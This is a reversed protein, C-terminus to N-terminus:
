GIKLFKTMMYWGSRRGYSIKSWTQGKEILRVEAGIPVDDYVKCGTSPRQRMKVSKGSPATVVATTYTVAAPQPKVATGSATGATTGTQKAASGSYAGRSNLLKLKAAFKWNGIKTDVKITPSTMHTIRLPNVGTVVGVYYYDRMDGNYYAGGPLYRPYKDLTWREDGKEYAKFVIDGVEFQDANSITRINVVAKRIAYNTGHIGDWNIGMRKLAGIILGICDCTGDLASGPQRYRPKETAIEDVKALFEKLM